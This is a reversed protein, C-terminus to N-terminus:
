LVSTMYYYSANISCKTGLLIRPTENLRQSLSRKKKLCELHNVTLYTTLVATKVMKILDPFFLILHLKVTTLKAHFTPPNRRHPLTLMSPCIVSVASRHHYHFLSPFQKVFWKTMSTLGLVMFEQSDKTCM